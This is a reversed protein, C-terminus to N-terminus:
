PTTFGAARLIERGREGVVFELFHRSMDPNASQRLAAIPYVNVASAAEPFTVGTLKGDSGLVDTVYVLGADAQGTIVKQAVDSVQNEESVPDLRVGAAQQVKAAASGCPVQPACIVVALGPRTLDALSTIAQPNGPAVAITLTNSAFTVPDGAILGDQEARGMTAADAPAFVDAFAGQSLQTRLDASGAFSFEVDAGPNGAEFRQGIETFAQRLSAAAFVVIRRDNVSQGSPTQPSACGGILVAVLAVPLVIRAAPGFPRNM